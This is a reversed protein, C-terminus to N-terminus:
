EGRGANAEPSNVCLIAIFARAESPLELPRLGDCAVKERRLISHGALAATLLFTGMVFMAVKAFSCFSDCEKM